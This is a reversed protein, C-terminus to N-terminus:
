IEYKTWDINDKITWYKQLTTQIHNMVTIMFTDLDEITNFSRYVPEDDTGLKFVVPLNIGDKNLAFDWSAKYNFQNESTLWVLNNEFQLGSLIEKDCEANYYDIIVKKIDILSPKSKFNEKMFSYENEGIEKVDWIIIYEGTSPNSCVLRKGGWNINGKLNEM